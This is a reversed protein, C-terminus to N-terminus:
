AIGNRLSLGLLFAGALQLYWLWGLPLFLGLVALLFIVLMAVVMLLSVRRLDYLLNPHFFLAARSSDLHATIVVRRRAERRAPRVGIVNRSGRKPLLRSLLPWANSEALYFILGLFSLVFCLPPSLPYLLAAAIFLAQIIGYPLSFTTLGPFSELRVKFGAEKLREPVFQAAQEEALSASPRPGIEGALFRVTQLIEEGLPSVEEEGSHELVLSM